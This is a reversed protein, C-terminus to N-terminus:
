KIIMVKESSIINGNTDFITAIIMQSPIDNIIITNEGKFIKHTSILTNNITKLKLRMNEQNGTYEVIIQNSAPNPYIFVQSKAETNDIDSLNDCDINTFVLEGNDNINGKWCQGNPSKMIIGDMNNEFLLDGNIHLKTKPSEIGIGVRGENFIFNSESNFFLGIDSLAGVGHNSNGLLLYAGNVSPTGEGRKDISGGSSGGSGSGASWNNPEIFIAAIEEQDAKLHLKQLPALQGYSDIINGIAVKGTKSFEIDQNEPETVSLTPYKSNFGVILSQITNNELFINNGYCGSGLTISNYMNAKIASGISIANNANTYSYFGLSTTYYGNAESAFGSSFAANGIAKSNIGIASAGTGSTETESYHVQGNSVFYLTLLILIFTIKKM